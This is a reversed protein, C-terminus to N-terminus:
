GEYNRGFWFKGAKSKDFAPKGAMRKAPKDALAQGGYAPRFGSVV